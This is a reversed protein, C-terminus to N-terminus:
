RNKAFEERMELYTCHISNEGDRGKGDRTDDIVYDLDGHENIFKLGEMVDEHYEAAGDFDSDLFDGIIEDYDDMIGANTMCSELIRAIRKLDM